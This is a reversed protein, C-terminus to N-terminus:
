RGALHKRRAGGEAVNMRTIAKAINIKAIAVEDPNHTQDHILWDEMTSKTSLAREMNIDEAWEAADTFIVITEKVDIFGESIAAIRYDKSGAEQIWLEGVDLLKTAWAHNAMFGEDGVLTRVIVLEVDGSYFRKSPTMIELKVSNAM